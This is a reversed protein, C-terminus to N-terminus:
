RIKFKKSKRPKLLIEDPQEFRFLDGYIYLQDLAHRWHNFKVEGMKKGDKWLEYVKM